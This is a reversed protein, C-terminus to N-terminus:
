RKLQEMASSGRFGGRKGAQSNNQTKLTAEYKQAGEARGTSEWAGYRGAEGEKLRMSSGDPGIVQLGYVCPNFTFYSTNTTDHSHPLSPGHFVNCIQCTELVFPPQDPELTALDSCSTGVSVKGPQSVPATDTWPPPPAIDGPVSKQSFHRPLAPDPQDPLTPSDQGWFYNQAPASSSLSSPAPSAPDQVHPSVEKRPASVLQPTIVACPKSTAPSQRSLSVLRQPSCSQGRPEQEVRVEQRPQPPATYQPGFWVSGDPGLQPRAQGVTAPYSEGLYQSSDPNGNNDHRHQHTTPVQQYPAPFVYNQPVGLQSLAQSLFSLDQYYLSGSGLPSIYPSPNTSCRASMSPPGPSSARSTAPSLHTTPSMTTTPKTMTLDPQSVSSTWLLNSMKSLRRAPQPLHGSPSTVMPAPHSPMAPVSSLSPLSNTMNTNNPPYIYTPMPMYQLVSGTETTYYSAVPQSRPAPPQSSSRSAARTPSMSADRSTHLAKSRALRRILPEERHGPPSM